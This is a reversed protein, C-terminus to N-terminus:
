WPYSSYTVPQMRVARRRARLPRSHGRRRRDAHSRHSRSPAGTTAPFPPLPHPLLRRDIHSQEREPIAPFQLGDVLIRNSLSNQVPRNRILTQNAPAPRPCIVDRGQM